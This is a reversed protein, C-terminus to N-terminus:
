LRLMGILQPCLVHPQMLLASRLSWAVGQRVEAVVEAVLRPRVGRGAGIGLVLRAVRVGDVHGAVVMAAALRLSLRARGPRRSKRKAEGLRARRDPRGDPRQECAQCVHTPRSRVLEHTHSRGLNLALLAYLTFELM